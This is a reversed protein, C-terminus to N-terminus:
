PNIGLIGQSWFSTSQQKPLKYSSFYINKLKKRKSSYVVYKVLKRQVGLVELKLETDTWPSTKNFVPILTMKRTNKSSSRCQLWTALVTWPRFPLTSLFLNTKGMFDKNKV